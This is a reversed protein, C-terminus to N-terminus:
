LTEITKWRKRGKIFDEFTNMIDVFTDYTADYLISNIVDMLYMDSYDNYKVHGDVILYKNMQKKGFDRQVTIEITKYREKNPGDKYSLIFYISVDETYNICFKRTVEDNLESDVYLKNNLTNKYMIVKEAYRVFQCFDWMQEFTRRTNTRDNYIIPYLPKFEEEVFSNYYEKYDEMIMDITLYPIEKTKSITKKKSFLTFKSDTRYDVYEQTLTERYKDERNFLTKQICDIFFQIYKNDNILMDSM